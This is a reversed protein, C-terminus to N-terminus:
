NLQFLLGTKFDSKFTQIAREASNSRHTNPPVLQFTVEEEEFADELIKSKENDLIWTSPAVGAHHCKKHLLKWAETITLSKRNKLSVALIANADYHYAVLIYEYGRQSKHPYRGTMDMYAKGHKSSTGFIHYAVENTKHNPTPSTPFFDDKLKKIEVEDLGTTINKEDATTEKTSQLNSYERKMHGQVTSEVIPLHKTILQADLGPWTIFHNNKIAKHFTSRVPAFAAAHLFEALDSKVKNKHLIINMSDHSPQHLNHCQHKNDEKLQRAIDQYDQNDQILENIADFVNVFGQHKISPTLPTSIQPKSQTRNNYLGPHTLPPQYNYSQLTTKERSYQQPLPIDWLKDHKNRFGQLVLKKDKVAYLLNDCYLAACGIRM